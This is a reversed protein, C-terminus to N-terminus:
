ERAKDSEAYGIKGAGSKNVGYFIGFTARERVKRMIRSDQDTDSHCSAVVAAGSGAALDVAEIDEENSIEDCIIVEPALTREAIEIGKARPYGSLVFLHCGELGETIEFRTDVVATRIRTEGNSLLYALERLLTTKGGAPPSYVLVNRRFSDDKMVGFLEDAFGPRRSPIRIVVSSIGHVSVIRGGETVARGCVGVRVGDSTVIYGEKITESHSYVSNGCLSMVTHRLEESSCAIGASILKDSVSLCVDSGAVARIENVEGGCSGIFTRLASSIRAPFYSVARLAYNKTDAATM